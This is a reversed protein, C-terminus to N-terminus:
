GAFLDDTDIEAEVTVVRGNENVSTNDYDSFSDSNLWDEIDPVDVDSESDFVLVGEFQTTEGNVQWSNGSAVQGKFQGYDENTEEVEERTRGSTYLGASINSVVENMDDSDEQYRDVDGNSTDILEEVIDEPAEDTSAYFSGTNAVVLTSGSIGVALSPEEVDQLFIQYGEYETEDEFENDEVDSVVSETDFDGGIVQGFSHGLVWDMEQRRLDHVNDEYTEAFSSFFDDADSDFQDSNDEAASADLYQYSYHDQDGFTGPEYLWNTYAGGGGGGGVVPIDSCGALTATAAVGGLKLVRRRNLPEDM